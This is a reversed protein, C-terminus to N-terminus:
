RHASSTITSQVFIMQQNESENWHHVGSSSRYKNGKMSFNVGSIGRVTESINTKCIFLYQFLVQLKSRISSIFIFIHLDHAVKSFPTMWIMAEDVNSVRHFKSVVVSNLRTHAEVFIGPFTFYILSMYLPCFYWKIPGVTHQCLFHRLKHQQNEVNPGYCGPYVM